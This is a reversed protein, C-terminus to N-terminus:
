RKGTGNGGYYSYAGYAAAVSEEVRNLVVGVLKMGRFEQCALQALDFATSGARIVFLVGDCLGALVGADSVPLVPPADLIVWDFLPGLQDLLGRLQMNSLLEAPNSVPRGAPIFFLNNQADAQIISYEDAEGRLFDALGPSSPAGLPVHLRSARLDADILLVRREHQRAIAQGLNLTVFTKGENPVTSTVLLTRLRRERRLQYLRSRLTCFQEAWPSFCQESCLVISEPDLKWVPRACRQRLEDLRLPGATPSAGDGRHMPIIRAARGAAENSLGTQAALSDAAKAEAALGMPAREAEARKLAEYIRSM